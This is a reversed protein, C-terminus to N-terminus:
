LPQIALSSHLQSNFGPGQKGTMTSVSNSGKLKQGLFSTGDGVIAIGFSIGSIPCFDLFPPSCLPANSSLGLIVSNAACNSIANQHFTVQHSAWTLGGLVAHWLLKQGDPKHHPGWSREWPIFPRDATKTKILTQPSQVQGGLVGEPYTYSGLCGHTGEFSREPSM